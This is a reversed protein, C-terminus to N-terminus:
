KGFVEIESISAPKKNSQGTFIIRMFRGKDGSSVPFEQVKMAKTNLTQDAIGNWTEGNESIEARYRYNAEDPFSIKVSSVETISELDVQWCAGPGTNGAQWCSLANSDNAQSAEHGISESSARTPKQHALNMRVNKQFVTEPLEYRVYMRHKTEPTKGPVFKPLGRTEIIIRADELGPSSARIVSKGGNYSRFEIAAKGDRIKIDSEPSFTISRGTPFEGPGSELTMTVEPSNNLSKGDKDTVTVVLHVDDTGCTNSIVTKDAMLQLKAPIGEAPWEPPPIKRYENRYWYWMRKPLRYYDIMGMHGFKGDGIHTGYDFACWLSQGSRWPFQEQQLDGWGPAYSGPRDEITSGYETVMGPVGPNIYLRAGDGNYGAIDGTKDLNGRQVGGVVVKRGHDLKHSLQVLEKLFERVRPLMSENTFFPENCMSWAIISPHNRHIRIMEELNNKVNEEFAEQDEKNPPYAGDGLYWGGNGRIGCSWFDNEQLLLVGLSDCAQSFAPDHPYHSGRIFDMGAEKVLSVDRVMGANTVATAWGAHDQHVNAGKFYYHEGNLFFGKDATWEMWRFGFATTYRDVPKEGEYLTSTASYLFPHQPHWLQPHAIAHGTQNFTVTEGAGIDASSSFEDVPKGSPDVVETKLLFTRSVAGNNKVETKVNVTGSQASVEPTTVFTGCWTIHATNTVLLYVDRYIGGPFIHDGGRPPLQSDWLNNLRVSLVNNGTAVMETIDFSFGTYGGRHRGANKGNVFIEADRFVGEFEIFIRKGSWKEPVVFSKRYWGYGSYWKGTQFYPISFSHPLHVREWLKDDYLVSEAGAQDGLQFKWERNINFRHRITKNSQASTHGTNCLLIIWLVARTFVSKNM